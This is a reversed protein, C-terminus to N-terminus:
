DEERLISPLNVLTQCCFMVDCSSTASCLPHSASIFVLHFHLTQLESNESMKDNQHHFQKFREKYTM